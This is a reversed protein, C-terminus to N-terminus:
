VTPSTILKRYLELLVRTREQEPNIARHAKAREQKVALMQYDSLIRPLLKEHGRRALAARLNKIYEPGKAPEKAAVEFLARAYDSSLTM